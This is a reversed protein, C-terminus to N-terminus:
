EAVLGIWDHTVLEPKGSAALETAIHVIVGWCREHQEFISDIQYDSFEELKGEADRGACTYLFRLEKEDISLHRMIEEDTFPTHCDYLKKFDHLTSAWSTKVKMSSKMTSDMHSTFPTNLPPRQTSPITECHSAEGEALHPKNDHQHMTSKMALYHVAKRNVTKPGAALSVRTRSKGPGMHM